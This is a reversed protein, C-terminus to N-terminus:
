VSDGAISGTKKDASRASGQIGSNGEGISFGGNKRASLGGSQRIGKFDEAWRGSVASRLSPPAVTGHFPVGLLRLTDAMPKGARAIEDVADDKSTTDLYLGSRAIRSTHEWTWIATSAKSTLDAERAKWSELKAEADESDEQRVYLDKVIWELERVRARLQKNERSLEVAAVPL